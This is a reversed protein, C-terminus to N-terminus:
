IFLGTYASTLARDFTLEPVFGGARIVRDKKILNTKNDNYPYKLKSSLDMDLYTYDMPDFIDDIDEEEEEINYLNNDNFNTDDFEIFLDKKKSLPKSKLIENASQESSALANIIDNKEAEIKLKEDKTLQIYAEKRRLKEQKEKELRYAIANEEKMQKVNNTAILAQNENRWKEIKENTEEININNILNFMLEEVEELYDNYQRLNNDFDELRKNFYKGVKKRIQVEKEVYLDEFTQPVFYSKRLIQKCFPCPAAGQGFIQNICTECLKHFCPSVLIKMNSNLYKRGKCKPYQEDEFSSFSQQVNDNSM